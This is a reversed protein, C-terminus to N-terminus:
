RPCGDSKAASIHSGADGRVVKYAAIRDGDKNANWHQGVLAAYLDPRLAITLKKAHDGDEAAIDIGDAAFPYGKAEVPVEHKGIRYGTAEHTPLPARVLAAHLDESVFVQLTVEDEKPEKEKRPEEEKRIQVEIDEAKRPYDKYQLLDESM